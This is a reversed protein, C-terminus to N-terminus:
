IENVEGFSVGGNDFNENHLVGDIEQLVNFTRDLITQLDSLENRVNFGKEGFGKTDMLYENGKQKELAKVVLNKAVELFVYTKAQESFNKFGKLHAVYAKDICEGEEMVFSFDNKSLYVRGTGKKNRSINNVTDKYM